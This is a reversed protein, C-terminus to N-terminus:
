EFHNRPQIEEKRCSNKTLKEYMKSCLVAFLHGLISNNGFPSHYIPLSGDENQWTNTLQM